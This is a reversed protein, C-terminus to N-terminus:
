RPSCRAGQRKCQYRANVPIVYVHSNLADRSECAGGGSWLDRVVGQMYGCAVGGIAITVDADVKCHSCIRWSTM